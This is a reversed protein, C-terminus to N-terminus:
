RRDFDRFLSSGLYKIEDLFGNDITAEWLSGLPKCHECKVKVKKRLFNDSDNQFPGVTEMKHGCRPCCVKVGLM